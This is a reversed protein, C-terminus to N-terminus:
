IFTARVKDTKTLYLGYLSGNEYANIIRKLYQKSTLKALQEITVFEVVKASNKNEHIALTEMIM